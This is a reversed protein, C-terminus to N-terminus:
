YNLGSDQGVVATRLLLCSCSCDIMLLQLYKDSCLTGFQKVNNCICTGSKELFFNCNAYCSERM